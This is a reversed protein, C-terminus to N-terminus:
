PRHAGTGPPVAADAEAAAPAGAADWGGAERLAAVVDAAEAQLALKDVKTSRTLPFPRDAPWIVVHQPRKYAAMGRCHAGVAEATLSAGPRPKVYALVGEDFLRHPMGIVEVMEVEPMRAIHDEVEGPFVNYGKQKIMFKRRGALYLARYTGLDKFWGLDGTYLLGERSVTRATAEPDGYYGLFVIPPHYCIEGIEGDPLEEGARGDPHMPARVTVAALEPFARGVQGAMEELPIGPPTLTAFGANETMGLGTAIRPAMRALRKLFEQDVAAGAYVALELSGLDYRDYDPHAWMMRYQTPIQGIVRVKHKAIAALSAAVDFIRLLVATGGLFMTTMFCETVCGVHSPPLNVLIRLPGELTMAQALIQNQVVINEHCLLAPKPPGTTGTTFIILAPTRAHLRARAAKLGGTLLDRAKLWLLRGKAMLGTISVAGALLEGPGPNPTFQVLHQVTPCAERVKAGASRFDRVPTNGLFFFARAGIRAVDRAVEEDKLRVDLPAVVVGIKFCAYMLMLHEPVLVLLTAVTDGPKLGLDLLRLAFFDVRSAFQRYTFSRGDEHQIMAPTDPTERAWREVYDNVLPLRAEM